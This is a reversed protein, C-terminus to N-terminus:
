ARDIRAAFCGHMAYHSHIYAVEDQALMKRIAPAIEAGEALDAVVIHGRVDIGRLSLVRRSLVEPLEDVADYPTEAGEAVFIAHRSRYPSDVPLHEYNLLLATKGPELDRLTVRDPVGPAAAVEHRIVGRAALVEDSLGYLPRFPDPSLGRIRFSM